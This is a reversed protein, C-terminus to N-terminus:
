SRAVFFNNIQKQPMARPVVDKGRYGETLHWQNFLENAIIPRAERLPPGAEFVALRRQM